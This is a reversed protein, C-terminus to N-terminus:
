RNCLSVTAGVQLAVKDVPQASPQTNFWPALAEDSARRRNMIRRRSELARPLCAVFHWLAPFSKPEWLVCGGIVLLDRSLTPLWFRRFLGGTINKTRMLFRNKVSHMNVIAPVARRNVPNVTRVHYGIADPIYLCRWGLL